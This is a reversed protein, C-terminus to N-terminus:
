SQGRTEIRGILKRALASRHPAPTVCHGSPLHRYQLWPFNIGRCLALRASLNHRANVEILKHRGDRSDRKFEINAFGQYSLAGLVKRGQELLDPLHRSVVVCPSGTDVPSNRIKEATFEVLPRGDQCYANYNAGCREDGPTLEQLVVDLGAAHAKSFEMVAQKADDVLTWKRGFVSHYLHSRTPKLVAPFAAREIDEVIDAAKTLPVTAPIDIGNPEALSYTASKSLCTAATWKDPAGVTFGVSEFRQRNRTLAGLSRDSAPLLLADFVAKACKSRHGISERDYRVLVVPVGEGGLARLIAVAPTSGGVVIM